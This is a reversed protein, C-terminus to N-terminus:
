SVIDTVAPPKTRWAGVARAAVVLSDATVVTFASVVALVERVAVTAWRFAALTARCFALAWRATTTALAWIPAGYRYPPVPGPDNSQEPKTWYAQFFAPTFSGRTALLWNTRVLVLTEHRLRWGPSRINKLPSPWTPM